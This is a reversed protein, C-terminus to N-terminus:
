FCAFALVITRAGAVGIACLAEDLIEENGRKRRQNRRRTRPPFLGSLFCFFLPFLFDVHVRLPPLVEPPNQCRRLKWALRRRNERENFDAFPGARRTSPLLSFTLNPSSAQDAAALPSRKARPDAPARARRSGRNGFGSAFSRAQDSPHRLRLQVRAIAIASPPSPSPGRRVSSARIGCNSDLRPGFVLADIERSGRRQQSRQGLPQARPGLSM